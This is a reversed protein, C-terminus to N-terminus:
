QWLLSYFGININLTNWHWMDTAPHIEPSIKKLSLEASSEGIVINAKKQFMETM